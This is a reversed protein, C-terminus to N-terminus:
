LEVIVDACAAVYDDHTVMIITKGKEHIKKLLGMVIDRNNVDLSGTPEDALIINADKLLIKAFAIRQQEGGSLTYIKKDQYNDLGVEKLAWSIKEKKEKSSLKKFRLVLELNEKVTANDILGFNQFMYSIERRLLKQSSKTGFRPNKYGKIWVEGKDISLLMGIINLLTSKGTGSAGRIAVFQGESIILSYDRLVTRDGFQKTVNRLEVIEM